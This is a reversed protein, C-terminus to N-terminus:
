VAIVICHFFDRTERSREQTDRPELHMLLGESDTQDGQSVLSDAEQALKPNTVRPVKMGLVM